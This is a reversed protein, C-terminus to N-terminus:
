MASIPVAVAHAAGSSALLRDPIRIKGRRKNTIQAAPSEFNILKAELDVQHWRLSLIAEKRRGTYIGLLIFLPM